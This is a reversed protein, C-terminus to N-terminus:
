PFEEEIQIPRKKPPLCQELMEDETQTGRDWHTEEPEEEELWGGAGRHAEHNQWHTQLTALSNEAQVARIWQSEMEQIAKEASRIQYKLQTAQERYLQDLGTLYISLHSVTDELEAEERGLGRMRAIWSRGRGETPPFFGM